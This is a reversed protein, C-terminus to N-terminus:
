TNINDYGKYRQRIYVKCGVLTIVSGLIAGGIGVGPLAYGFWGPFNNKDDSGSEPSPSPSPSSSPFMYSEIDVVTANEPAVTRNPNLAALPHTQNYNSYSLQNCISDLTQVDGPFGGGSSSLSRYDPEDLVLPVDPLTKDESISSRVLRGGLQNDYGQIVPSFTNLDSFFKMAHINNGSLIIGKYATSSADILPASLAFKSNEVWLASTDYVDLGRYPLNIKEPLNSFVVHVGSVKAPANYLHIGTQHEPFNDFAGVMMVRVGKFRVNYSNVDNVQVISKDTNIVQIGYEAGKSYLLLNEFTYSMDEYSSAEAYILSTIRVNGGVSSNSFEMTDANSYVVSNFRINEPVEIRVGAVTSGSMLKLACSGCDDDPASGSVDLLFRGTDSEASPLIATGSPVTYPTNIPSENSTVLYLTDPELNSSDPLSVVRRTREETYRYCIDQISKQGPPYDNCNKNAVVLARNSSDSVPASKAVLPIIAFTIFALFFM